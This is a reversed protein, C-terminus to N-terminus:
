FIANKVYCKATNHPSFFDNKLANERDNGPHNKVCRTYSTTTSCFHSVTTFVADLDATVGSEALSFAVWPEVVFNWKNLPPLTRAIASHRIANLASSEKGCMEFDIWCRLYLCFCVNGYIM